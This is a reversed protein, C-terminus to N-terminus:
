SSLLLYNIWLYSYRIFYYLYAQYIDTSIDLATIVVQDIFFRIMNWSRKKVFNKTKIMYKYIKQFGKKIFKGFRKFSRKICSGAYELNDRSRESCCFCCCICFCFCHRIKHGINTIYESSKEVVRRGGYKIYFFGFTCCFFPLFPMSVCGLVFLLLCIFCIKIALCLNDCCGM